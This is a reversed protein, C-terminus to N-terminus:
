KDSAFVDYIVPRAAPKERSINCANQLLTVARHASASSAAHVIALPTKEDVHTGIPAIDSFGVSLDLRDGLARRGGGLEIIANGVAFANVAALTGDSKAPVPIQVSAAPLHRRYNEVFDAPGGLAAVMRGFVDAARGSGIADDVKDSARQADKEIGALLLMQACLSRVVEHLREERRVGTLYEVCEAIELAKGATLGLTENMDTLVANCKLGASVATDIISRALEKSKEYSPM